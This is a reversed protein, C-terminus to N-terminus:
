VIVLSAMYQKFFDKNIVKPILVNIKQLFREKNLDKVEFNPIRVVKFEKSELFETRKQDKFKRYKTYHNSGDIEIVLRYDPLYFDPIYWGIVFQSQFRIGWSKLKISFDKEWRTPRHRMKRANKHIYEINM